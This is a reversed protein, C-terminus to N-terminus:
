KENEYVEAIKEMIIKRGRHIRAAVNETTIGLIKAIEREKMNYLYRYYCASRYTPPLARIINIIRRHNERTIMDEALPDISQLEDRQASLDDAIMDQGKGTKRLYDIASNRAAAVAYTKLPVGNVEPIYDCRKILGKMAEHVIDRTVFIDEVYKRVEYSMIDFYHNYIYEIKDRQEKNSCLALYLALM